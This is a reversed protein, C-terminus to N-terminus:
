KKKIIYSQLSEECGCKKYFGEKGPQAGFYLMTPSNEGTLEMLRKGIGKNQYEPLVMLETITGFFYGDTLIRLCGVLKDGDYATINLTKLLAKETKESDYQGPWVKQALYLFDFVNINKDDVIFEM